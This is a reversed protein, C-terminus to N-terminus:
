IYVTQVDLQIVIKKKTKKKTKITCDKFCHPSLDNINSTRQRSKYVILFNQSSIDSNCPIFLRLECNRSKKKKRWPFFFFSKIKFNLSKEPLKWNIDCM